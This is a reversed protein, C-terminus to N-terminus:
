KYVIREIGIVSNPEKRDWIVLKVNIESKGKFKLLLEKEFVYDGEVIWYYDTYTNTTWKKNVFTRVEGPKLDELDIVPKNMADIVIDYESVKDFVTGTNKDMVSMSVHYTGIDNYCYDVYPGKGKNGDGLDWIFQLTDTEEMETEELVYCFYLEQQYYNEVSPVENKFYYIGDTKKKRNSAFYGSLHDENEVYGFDDYKSNIPEELLIPKTWKKGDRKTKYIDLGGLGGKRDSAFFLTNGVFRPSTEMRETNINVGLNQPVGWKNNLNKCYYLDSMGEGAINDSSFVLFKGNSSVTPHAVNFRKDNYKFATVRKSEGEATEDTIYIGFNGVKNKKTKRRSNSSFYVQNNYICNSTENFMGNISDSLPIIKSKVKNEEKIEVKFLDYFYSGDDTQITNLTNRKKNSSFYLFGDKIYPAFSSEEFDTVNVKQVTINQANLVSSMLVCLIVYFLSKKSIRSDLHHLGINNLLIM